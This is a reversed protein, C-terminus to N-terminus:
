EYMHGQVLARWSAIQLGDCHHGKLSCEPYSSVCPAKVLLHAFKSRVNKGHICPSAGKCMYGLDIIKSIINSTTRGGLHSPTSSDADFAFLLM